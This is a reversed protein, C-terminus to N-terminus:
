ISSVTFHLQEKSQVSPQSFDKEGEKWPTQQGDTQSSKPDDDINLGRYRGGGFHTASTQGGWCEGLSLKLAIWPTSIVRSNHRMWILENDNAQELRCYVHIEPIIGIFQVLDSRWEKSLGGSLLSHYIEINIINRNEELVYNLSIKDNEM